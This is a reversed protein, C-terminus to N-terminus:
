RFSCLHVYLVIDSTQFAICYIVRDFSVKPAVFPSPVPHYYNSATKTNISVTAQPNKWFNLRNTIRSAIGPSNLEVLLACLSIILLSALGHFVQKPFVTTVRPTTEAPRSLPTSWSDDLGQSGRNQASM